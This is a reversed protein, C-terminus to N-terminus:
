INLINLLRELIPIEPKLDEYIWDKFIEKNDRNAEFFAIQDKKARLAIPGITRLFRVSRRIFTEETEYNPDRLLKYHSYGLHFISDTPMIYYLGTQILFVEKRTLPSIYYFHKDTILVHTFFIKKIAPANWKVHCLTSYIIHEGPPVKSILHTCDIPVFINDKESAETKPLNRCNTCFLLNRKIKARCRICRM